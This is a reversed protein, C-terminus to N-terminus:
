SFLEAVAAAMSNKPTSVARGSKRRDRYHSQALRSRYERNLEDLKALTARTPLPLPDPAVIGRPWVGTFSKYQALFWSESKGKMGQIYRLEGYLATKAEKTLPVVKPAVIEVLDGEEHATTFKPPFAYGCSSCSKGCPMFGCDPCKVIKKERPKPVAKPKPKGDDLEHIGEEMFEELRYTKEFNNWTFNGALDLITCNEKGPYSRLGRGLVQVFESFSKRYPRCKIVVSIDPVDFGRSLASVSILWRIESDPKRFEGRKGILAEREEEPTHYTYLAAKIGASLAQRQLEECHAVNVGFVIAKGNNGRKQYQEVVDGVIRMSREAAFEDTWEGAVIAKTPVDTEMDPQTAGWVKFPTIVGDQTLQNATRVNVIAKYFKGLGKTFPTASLGVHSGGGNLIRDTATKHIIHAEDHIILKADPWRRRAVTQISVVQILESPKYRAHQSQVVGHPIGYRDLRESTQGLLSLRDVVFLGGNGKRYCDQLMSVGIETKGSGVFSALMTAGVQRGINSRIQQKSEEQYDRLVLEEQQVNWFEPESAFTM